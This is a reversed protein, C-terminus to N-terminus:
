IFAGKQKRKGSKATTGKAKGRSVREGPREGKLKKADRVTEQDGDEFSQTKRKKVGFGDPQRPAPDGNSKM